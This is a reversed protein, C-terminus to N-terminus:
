CYIPWPSLKVGNQQRPTPQIHYNPRKKMHRIWQGSFTRQAQIRPCLRFTRAIYQQFAAKFQALVLGSVSDDKAAYEQKFRALRDQQRGRPFIKDDVDTTNMVLKIRFGLYDKTIRRIVDTLVYNKAHGLHADEYVTLGCAYWTAMKGTPDVPVFDNKSRTLSNYVKLRPLQVDPQARSLIWPPKKRGNCAM